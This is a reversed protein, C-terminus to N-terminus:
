MCDVRQKEENELAQKMETFGKQLTDMKQNVEEYMTKLSLAEKKWYDSLTVETEVKLNETEQSTKIVEGIVKRNQMKYTVTATIVSSIVSSSFVIGLITLMLDWQMM